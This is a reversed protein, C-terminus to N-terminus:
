RVQVFWYAVQDDALRVVTSCTIGQIRRESALLYYRPALRAYSFIGILALPVRIQFAGGHRPITAM